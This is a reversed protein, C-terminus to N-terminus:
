QKKVATVLEIKSEESKAPHTLSEIVVKIEYFDDPEFDENIIIVATADYKESNDLVNGEAFCGEGKKCFYKTPDGPQYGNQRIEEMVEQGFYLLQTERGQETTRTFSGTMILMMPVIVIGAIVVSILLEILTVGKENNM